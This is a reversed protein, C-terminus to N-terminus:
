LATTRTVRQYSTGDPSCLVQGCKGIERYPAGLSVHIWSWAATRRKEIIAQGFPLGSDFALWRFLAVLDGDIDLDAAQGVRHQSTASGIGRTARWGRNLLGVDPRNVRVAHGVHTRIPELITAALVGMADRHAAPTATTVGLEAWSFHPSANGTLHTM